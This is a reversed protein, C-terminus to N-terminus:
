AEIEQLGIKVRFKDVAIEPVAIVGELQKFGQVFAVKKEHETSAENSAVRFLDKAKETKKKDGDSLITSVMKIANSEAIVFAQELSDVAVRFEESEPTESFRLAKKLAMTMALTEPVSQDVMAPYKILKVIDTEYSAISEQVDRFVRLSINVSSSAKTTTVAAPSSSANMSEMSAGIKAENLKGNIVKQNALIHSSGAVVSNMVEVGEDLRANEFLKSNGTIECKASIKVDGFIETTGSVLCVDELMANGYIKADESINISNRIFASGFIQVNGEIVKNNKTQGTKYNHSEVFANGTIKANGRIYLVASDYDQMVSFYKRLVANGGIYANDSISVKGIIQAEDAVWCSGEHSLSKRHTVLGGLDGAKVGHKPIDRLAQLRYFKATKNDLTRTTMKGARILKYKKETM